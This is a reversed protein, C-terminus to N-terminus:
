DITTAYSLPIKQLRWDIIAQHLIDEVKAKKLRPDPQQGLIQLARYINKNATTSNLARALNQKSLKQGARNNIVPIHAFKISNLNLAKILLIQKASESLLDSGRVINNIGMQADDVAVALQYAWIQDKRQLVFDTTKSRKYIQSGCIVDTWHVSTQSNKFRWVCQKALPDILNTRCHGDYLTSACRRTIDKRSCLCPYVLDAEKLVALAEQYMQHRQSQYIIEGDWHLGHAKLTEIIGQSAGAVERPPDIDDIRLRWLGAHHKADVYSALAALLSGFHLTGTPSPAFRGIYM